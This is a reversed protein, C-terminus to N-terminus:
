KAELRVAIEIHATQPFMDIVAIDQMTYANPCFFALDRALTAPNCSVYIIKKPRLRHIEKIVSESCGKRPPDLIITEIGEFKKCDFIRDELRGTIFQVSDIKNLKASLKADEVAKPEVEIGVVSHGAKALWLTIGGIGCFADVVWGGVSGTWDLILDYLRITQESNVQFFSTLSLHFQLDGLKEVLYNRGWLTQQKKGFLINTKNSNINQVMGVPLLSQGYFEKALCNVFDKPFNGPMTIFGILFEDTKLSHRVIISRLFGLHKFEDYISVKYYEIHNRIIEKVHNITPHMADCCESDVVAHTGERFFGIKLKRHVQQLAFGGKNRSFYPPNAPFIQISEPIKIKGIRLLDDRVVNVKFEIQAEYTLDQLKCGGCQPFVPCHPIARKLSRNVWQSIEMVGFRPTTKVVRGSIRDGPVGGPVFITYGEHHGIGDGSSALAQIDLEIRDGNQVPIQFKIKAM